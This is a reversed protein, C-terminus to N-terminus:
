APNVTFLSEQRTPIDSSKKRVINRIQKESLHWFRAQSILTNRDIVVATFILDDRVANFLKECKPICIHSGNFEMVIRKTGHVGILDVFRRM